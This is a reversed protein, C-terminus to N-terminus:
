RGSARAREVIRDLRRLHSGRWYTRGCSACRKFERYVLFVQLPVSRAAETRGIAELVGNCEMCRTYADISGALDLTEPGAGVVGHM